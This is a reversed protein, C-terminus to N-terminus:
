AENRYHLVAPHAVIHGVENRSVDSADIGGLTEGIRAIGVIKRYQRYDPVLRGSPKRLEPLLLEQSM